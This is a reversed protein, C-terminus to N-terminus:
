LLGQGAQVLVDLIHVRLEEEHVGEGLAGDDYRTRRVERSCRHLRVILVHQNDSAVLAQRIGVRGLEEPDKLVHTESILEIRILRLAPSAGLAQEAEAPIDRGGADAVLLPRVLAPAVAGAGLGPRLLAAEELPEVVLGLAGLLLGRPRRAEGRAEAVELAPHEGAEAGIDHGRGRLVGFAPRRRVVGHLLEGCGEGGDAEHLRRGLRGLVGVRGGRRVTKRQRPCGRWRQGEGCVKDRQRDLGGCVQEVDVGGAPATQLEVASGLLRQRRRDTRQRLLGGPALHELDQPLHIAAEDRPRLARPPREHYRDQPKEPLIRLSNALEGPRVPQRECSRM